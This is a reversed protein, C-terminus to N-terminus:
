AAVQGARLTAFYEVHAAYTRAIVSVENGRIKGSSIALLVDNAVDDLVSEDRTQVARGLADALVIAASTTLVHRVDLQAAIDEAEEGSVAEYPQLGHSCEECGGCTPACRPHVTVALYAPQDAVAPRYEPEGYAHFVEGRHTEFRRGM